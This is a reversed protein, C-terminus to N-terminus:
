YIRKESSVLEGCPRLPCSSKDALPQSPDPQLAFLPSSEMQSGYSHVPVDRGAEFDFEGKEACAVTQWHM